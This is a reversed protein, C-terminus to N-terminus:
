RLYHRLVVDLRNHGLARSVLYVASRDYDSPKLRGTSPPLDRGSLERYMGQAFERRLAHVDLHDPIARFIKEEGRRGAILARTHAQYGSRVPVTRAKGGKGNTIVVFVSGTELSIDHVRLDRVESRRLGCGKLFEILPQHKHEDLQDRRASQRSRTIAERSRKPIEVTQALDRRTFFLRLAARQVQLTYPSAGIALHEQLWTTALEDAREDIQELLRIQQTDRAWAVFSLVQQQYTKRTTHSHIHNTTMSWPATTGASQAQARAEQKAAFRSQGIAMLSDLRNLTQKIISPNKGM